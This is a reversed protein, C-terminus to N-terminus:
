LQTNNIINQGRQLSTQSGTFDSYLLATQANEAEIIIDMTNNRYISNAYASLPMTSNNKQVQINFEGQQLFRQTAIDIEGTYVSGANNVIPTLSLTIKLALDQTLGSITFVDGGSYAFAIPNPYNPLATGDSQLISLTRISINAKPDSGGYNSTDQLEFFSPDLQPLYEISTILSM